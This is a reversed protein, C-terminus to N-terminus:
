EKIFAEYYADIDGIQYSEYDMKEAAENMRKASIACDGFETGVIFYGNKESAVKRVRLNSIDPGWSKATCQALFANADNPDDFFCTCDAYGHSSSVFVKNTGSGNDGQKNLPKVHAYAPSASKANDAVICFSVNTNAYVKQGPQVKLDRANGSQPGSSKYPNAPGQGPAKPARPTKAPAAAPTQASTAGTTAASATTANGKNLQQSLFCEFDWLKGGITSQKYQDMEATTKNTNVDDWYIGNEACFDAIYGAITDAPRRVMRAGKVRGYATPDVFFKADALKVLAKDVNFFDFNRQLLETCVVNIDTRLSYSSLSTWRHALNKGISTDGVQIIGGQWFLDLLFGKSEAKDKASLKAM